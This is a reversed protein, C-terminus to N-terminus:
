LSKRNTRRKRNYLMSVSQAFTIRSREAREYLYHNNKVREVLLRCFNRLITDLRAFLSKETVVRCSVYLFGGVALMVVVASLLLLKAGLVVALLAILAPTFLALLAFIMNNVSWALAYNTRLQVVRASETVSNKELYASAGVFTQLLIEENMQRSAVVNACYTIANREVISEGQLHLVYDYSAVEKGIIAARERNEMPLDVLVVRRYARHRSRYLARVGKLHFHNVRVLHYRGILEGFPSLYHQLDTVIVAESRPYEEELLAILPAPTEPYSVIASIGVHAMSEQLQYVMSSKQSSRHWLVVFLLAGVLTVVSFLLLLISILQM